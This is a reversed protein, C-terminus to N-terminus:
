LSSHGASSAGSSSSTGATSPRAVMCEASSPCVGAFEPSALIAAPATERSVPEFGLRGFWTAAGTTLLYVADLGAAGAARVCEEVLARGLGLGRQRDEVAVSRLLGSCNYQQLGAVGIVRGGLRGVVYAEPFQHELGSLPLEAAVLLGTM